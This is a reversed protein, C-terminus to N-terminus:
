IHGEGDSKITRQSGSDLGHDPNWNDGGASDVVRGHSLAEQLLALGVQTDHGPSLDCVRLEGVLRALSTQVINPRTEAVFSTADVPNVSALSNGTHVVRDDAAFRDPVLWAAGSDVLPHYDDAAPRCSQFTGTDSAQAAM